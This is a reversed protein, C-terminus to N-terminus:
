QLSYRTNNDEEDDSSDYFDSVQIADTALDLYSGSPM